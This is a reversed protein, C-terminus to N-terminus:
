RYQDTASLTAEKGIEIASENSPPSWIFNVKENFNNM